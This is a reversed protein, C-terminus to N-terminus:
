IGFETTEDGRIISKLTHGRDGLGGSLRTVNAEVNDEFGEIAREYKQGLNVIVYNYDGTRVRQTLESCIEAQLEEARADTMERDYSSIMEDKTLLGYEASLICIDLGDRFKGERIAKKIIRYYYGDYLNLAPVPESVENKRKSCGQLLLGNM